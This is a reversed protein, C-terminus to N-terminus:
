AFQAEIQKQVIGSERADNLTKNLDASIVRANSFANSGSGSRGSIHDIQAQADTSAMILHEYRERNTIGWLDSTLWGEHLLMNCKRIISRQSESFGTTNSITGPAPLGMAFYQQQQTYWLWDIVAYPRSKYFAFVHSPKAWDISAPGVCGVQLAVNRIGATIGLREVYWNAAVMLKWAAELNNRLEADARTFPDQVAICPPQMLTKLNQFDQPVPAGAVHQVIVEIRDPIATTADAYCCHVNLNIRNGPTALHVALAREMIGWAGSGGNFGAYMPVLNEPVEPGGYQLGILHGRETHELRYDCSGSLEHQSLPQPPNGVIRPTAPGPMDSGIAFLVRRRPVGGWMFAEPVCDFKM